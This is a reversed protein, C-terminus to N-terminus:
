DTKVKMDRSTLMFSLPKDALNQVTASGIPVSCSKAGPFPSQCQCPLVQALIALTKPLTVTKVLSGLQQGVDFDFPEEISQPFPAPPPPTQPPPPPPQPPPQHGQSAGLTRAALCWWARSQFPRCCGRRFSRAESPSGFEPGSCMFFHYLHLVCVRAYVRM